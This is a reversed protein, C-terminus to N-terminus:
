SIKKATKLNSVTKLGTKAM